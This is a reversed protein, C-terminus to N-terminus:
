GDARAEPPLLAAPADERYKRHWEAPYDELKQGTLLGHECLAEWTAWVAGLGQHLKIPPRGDSHEVCILEVRKGSCRECGLSAGCAWCRPHLRAAHHDEGRLKAGFSASDGKCHAIKGDRWIGSRPFSEACDPCSITANSEQEGRKKM